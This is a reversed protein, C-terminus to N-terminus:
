LKKNAFRTRKNSRPKSQKWRKRKSRNLKFLPKHKRQMRNQKSRKHVSNKLKLKPM